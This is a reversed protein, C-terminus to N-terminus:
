KWLRPETSRLSFACLFHTGDMQRSSEKLSRVTGIVFSIVGDVDGWIRPRTPTCNGNGPPTVKETGNEEAARGFRNPPFRVILPPRFRAGTEHRLVRGFAVRALSAHTVSRM